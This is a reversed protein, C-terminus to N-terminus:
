RRRTAATSRSGRISPKKSTPKKSTPKKSAPKKSAVKKSKAIKARGRTAVAASPSEQAPLSATEGLEIDFLAALDGLDSDAAPLSPAADLAGAAQTVLLSPDVQRLTFLLEQQTDLRAGIGYLVAAVHKCMDAGDPCSCSVSLEGARPLIGDKHETLTQMVTPSFSGNLLDLLSEIQGHCREVLRTWCRPAMAAVDIEVRYVSSGQVQARVQGAQIELHVVAGHKLYSRGRPLRSAMDAQAELNSCWAKGWFTEALARRDSPLIPSCPKGRKRQKAVYAAANKRRQATSVYPPYQNM